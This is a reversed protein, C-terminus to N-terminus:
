VSQEQRLESCNANGDGVGRRDISDERGVRGRQQLLQGFQVLAGDVRHEDAERRRSNRLIQKVTLHVEATTSEVM